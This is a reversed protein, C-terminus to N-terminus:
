LKENATTLGRIASEYISEREKQGRLFANYLEKSQLLAGPNVGELKSLEIANFIEDDNKDPFADRFAQFQNVYLFAADDSMSQETRGLAQNVENPKGFFNLRREMNQMASNIEEDSFGATRAKSIRNNLAPYRNILWDFGNISDFPDDLRRTLELGQLQLQEISPANNNNNINQTNNGYFDQM